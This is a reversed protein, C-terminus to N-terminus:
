EGDLNEIEDEEDDEKDGSEPERAWMMAGIIIPIAVLSDLFSNYWIWQDTTLLFVLPLEIVILAIGAGALAFAARQPNIKGLGGMYLAMRKGLYSGGRLGDITAFSAMILGMLSGRLKVFTDDQFILALTASIVAMIVGFVAFGGLLDVRVFRQVFFLALTVAAGTFAATVLGFNRAVFFFIVGMSLDVIISPGLAKTRAEQDLEMYEDTRDFKPRSSSM